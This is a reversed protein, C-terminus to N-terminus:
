FRGETVLVFDMGFSVAHIKLMLLMQEREGGQPM